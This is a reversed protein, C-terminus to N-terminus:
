EQEIEVNGLNTVNGITVMVNEQTAVQYTAAPLFVVNYSGASLGRILFHGTSDAYTTSVTDSGLIAYIAPSAEKPEVIGKIAGDTAETITKIVPKLSFGGNGKTVISKAADFDLLIKYTIGETLVQNVQLKLGSQQASPTSLDFVQEDIRLDNENGLKLRVQSIKGAPIEITGLLTDIGNTLELLNYRGQKIQLTRWGSEDNGEGVHIDVGTIEVNVEDYDGPADTLWVEIKANQPDSECGYLASILLSVFVIFIIKKM